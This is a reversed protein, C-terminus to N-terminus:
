ATPRAAGLYDSRSISDVQVNLGTRPANIMKGDGVYIGVHSADAPTGFFVLDGPQLPAGAPVKPLRAWQDESTRPVTVGSSKYAGQVLGSCDWSSPGTGGYLYPDGIHAFAFQVALVAQTAAPGPIIAVAGAGGPKAGYFRADGFSFIGGDAAVMRYGGGTGTSAMSIVPQNLRIGGTSGLFTADGFSFVGGDSAVLWYGQGSPTPAMGVVPKNLVMGGTSGFFGANGYSFVGGDSAVLWYGQGSPTPAMGVIPKNLRIGGTSGFFGANGYSFVGGDTAVLWLGNGSPTSAAGVVPKNLAMAKTSGLQPASGRPTVAGAASVLWVGNGDATSAAAVITGAPPTTLFPAGFSDVAGTSRVVRYGSEGSRVATPPTAPGAAIASPTVVTLATAALSLILTLRPFSRM